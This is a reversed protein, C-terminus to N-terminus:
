IIFWKEEIKVRDDVTKVTSGADDLIEALWLTGGKRAILKISGAGLEYPVAINDALVVIDDPEYIIKM